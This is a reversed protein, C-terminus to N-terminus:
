RKVMPLYQEKATVSLYLEYKDDVEQDARYVVAQGNPTLKFSLVNGNAVLPGNLKVPAGGLISNSYLEDVGDVSQDAIYVVGQSNPTITFNRVDQGATLAGNIKVPTGGLISNSYLENIGTTDQDAVYVVRASNPTIADIQEPIPIVTSGTPLVGNLHIPTGGTIYNSYLEYVSDPGVTKNTTLVVGQSNPTIAYSAIWASAALTGSVKIPTGGTIYTSYLEAMDDTDQDALYVVGLSNPTIAFSRVYTTDLTLASLTHPSGGTIANSFLEVKGPDDPDSSYVVGLSNPTIAFKSISSFRAPSPDSLKAPTGGTIPVSYLEERDIVEQDASYVVRQSDASVAFVTVTGGYVLTGNLKVATGGTIPVSYIEFRHALEQDARYVVRQGDETIQWTSVNGDAVLPGNLKVATGGAIPVSFLELREDIEQDAQYVVRQSDSSFFFKDIYIDGGSTFPGNIKVPDGGSLPVSFLEDVGYTERDAKFVVYRGDPSIKFGKVDKSNSMTGSIKRNIIAAQAPRVSVLLLILTLSSLMVRRFFVNWAGYRIFAVTKESM